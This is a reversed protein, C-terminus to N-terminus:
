STESPRKLVASYKMPATDAKLQVEVLTFISIEQPITGQEPCEAQWILTMEPKKGVKRYHFNELGQLANCYIRKQVGYRLVLVDFAQDLVGMVMAESELPGSEKVFAAFFLEASMEQVRKSATKKDNCHSAQKHVEEGILSLHPGCGLSAALLRHVIVDAYRRIPSTFHTYFPVNLAYHRFLPEEKLVGTCFYVAMQMPRSCMHTLVEKRASSYEDTGLTENLSRHLAGASSFDLDLGMQQCFEQLEDVMKTQPPPHRRLLAQQPFSRYIQHATAMNALLMFEEVLKNSDRYQYIYCGQPMGTEKDLTFSLKLQDLRLAGGQFRQARLNQAIRHLNLVAQHIEDIPHEPACPPLEEASFLKDPADIMSQAHDYSLKVCSCIVSRGFWESLIKGQPTIKWIVSFTLRDTMPNLSCLEECLLRPLMPIVKQVLYVSTARRSAVADLARGEEVFYSVDAIHVGVEFNGDPLPKCSLADDLDRATAPDITFICEKRLDRRRHLEEPPITWPLDQPLCSLVDESFESFDVDYETLIGETEPEIEGAQGLSKALRGEAFTSNDHWATIRCIFLTNAYDGPRSVFDDPCDALPVNVRPVRHDVPAFMAFNKDPLFKIFGTAARSHKQEVIYVVKATRQLHKDPVTRPDAPQCAKEKGPSEGNNLCSSGAPSLNMGEVKAALEAESYQAEVIVDPSPPRGTEQGRTATREVPTEPESACEGNTDSKVVKWQERPLVKVVVVDGNLARNRAVVGDLFIDRSGDPAPIFAEQYKKPNIRLPGQILEGRKLGASVDQATMYAEFVPKRKGGRAKNRNKSTDNPTVCAGFTEDQTQPVPTRKAAGGDACGGEGSKAANKKKSKKKEQEKGSPPSSGKHPSAGHSLDKGGADGHRHKKNQKSHGQRLLGEEASEVDGDQSTNTDRREGRQRRGDAALKPWPSEAPGGREGVKELYLAVCSGTERAKAPSAPREYPAPSGSEAQHRKKWNSDLQELCAESGNEEAQLQLQQQVFQDRFSRFRSSHHQSLLRAYADKQPAGSVNQGRRADRSPNSGKAQRRPEM